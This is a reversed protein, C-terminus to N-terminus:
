RATGWTVAGNEVRAGCHGAGDLADASFFREDILLAREAVFGTQAAQVELEDVMERVGFFFVAHARGLLANHRCESAYDRLHGLHPVMDAWRDAYRAFTIGPTCEIRPTM